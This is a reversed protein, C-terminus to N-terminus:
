SPIIECDECPESDSGDSFQRLLGDLERNCHCELHKHCACKPCLAISKRQELANENYVYWTSRTNNSKVSLKECIVGDRRNTKMTKYLFNELKGVEPVSLMKPHCWTERASHFSLGTQSLRPFDKKLKSKITEYLTASEHDFDFVDVRPEMNVAHYFVKACVAGGKMSSKVRKERKKKQITAKLKSIEAEKEKNIHKLEKIENSMGTEDPPNSSMSAPISANSERLRSLEASTEKLKRNLESVQKQLGKITAPCDLKTLGRANMPSTAFYAAWDRSGQEILPDFTKNLEYKRESPLLRYESVFVLLKELDAYGTGKFGRLLHFVTHTWLPLDRFKNILEQDGFQASDSLSRVEVPSTRAGPLADFATSTPM